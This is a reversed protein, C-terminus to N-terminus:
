KAAIWAPRATTMSYCDAPAYSAEWLSLRPTAHDKDGLRIRPRALYHRFAANRRYVLVETQLLLQPGAPPPKLIRYRLCM